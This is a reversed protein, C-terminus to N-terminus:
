SRRAVYKAPNVPRGDKLVEFHVHPGTSVGAHWLRQFLNNMEAQLESLSGPLDKRSPIPIMM